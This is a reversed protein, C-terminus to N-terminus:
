SLALIQCTWNLDQSVTEALPDDSVHRLGKPVSDANDSFTNSTGEVGRKSQATTAKSEPNTGPQVM